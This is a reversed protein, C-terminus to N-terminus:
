GIGPEAAFGYTYYTTGSVTSSGLFFLQKIVGGDDGFIAVNGSSVDNGVETPLQLIKDLGFKVINDGNMDQLATTTVFKDGAGFGNITDTGSVGGTLSVGLATDYFFTDATGATGYLADAGVTGEISGKPKVVATAYVYFGNEASQGLYRVGQRASAGMDIEDLGTAGDFLDLRKDGGYTIIGDGDSDFLAATTFLSDNRGFALFDTGTNTTNDAFFAENAATGLRAASTGDNGATLNITTYAM